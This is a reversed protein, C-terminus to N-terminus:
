YHSFNLDLFPEKAYGLYFSIDDFNFKIPHGKINEFIRVERLNTLDFYEAYESIVIEHSKRMESIIFSQISDLVLTIQEKYRYYIREEEFLQNGLHKYRHFWTHCFQFTLCNLNEAYLEDLACRIVEQNELDSESPIFESMDDQYIILEHCFFDYDNLKGYQYGDRIDLLADGKIKFILSLLSVEDIYFAFCLEDEELDENHIRRPKLPEVDIICSRIKEFFQKVYKYFNYATLGNYSGLFDLEKEFSESDLNSVTEILRDIRSQM